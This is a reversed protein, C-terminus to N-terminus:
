RRSDPLQFQRQERIRQAERRIALTALLVGVLVFAVVIWPWAHGPKRPPPELSNSM